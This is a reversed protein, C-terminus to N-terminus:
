WQGRLVRERGSDESRRVLAAEELFDNTEGTTRVGRETLSEFPGDLPDLHYGPIAPYFIVM